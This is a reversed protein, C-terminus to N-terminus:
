THMYHIITTDLSSHLSRHGINKDRISQAHSYTKYLSNVPNLLIIVIIYSYNNNRVEININAVGSRIIINYPFVVM